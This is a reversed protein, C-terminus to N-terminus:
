KKRLARIEDELSAIKSKLTIVEIADPRLYSLKQSLEAKAQTVNNELNNIISLINQAETAPDIFTHNNRFVRIEEAIEKVKDKAKEVEYSALKIADSVAKANM